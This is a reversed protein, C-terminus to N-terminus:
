LNELNNYSSTRNNQYNLIKLYMVAYSFGLIYGEIDYWSKDSSKLYLHEIQEMIQYLCIMIFYIFGYNINFKCIFMGTFGWPIHIANRIFREPSNWFALSSIISHIFSTLFCVSFLIVTNCKTM